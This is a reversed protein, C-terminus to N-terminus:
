DWNLIKDFQAPDRRKMRMMNAYKKPYDPDTTNLMPIGYRLGTNPNKENYLEEFEKRNKEAEKQGPLNGADIGFAREFVEINPMEDRIKTEKEKTM